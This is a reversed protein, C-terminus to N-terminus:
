PLMISVMFIASFTATWAISRRACGHEERLVLGLDVFDFRCALQGDLVQVLSEGLLIEFCQELLNARHGFGVDSHTRKSSQSCRCAVRRALM